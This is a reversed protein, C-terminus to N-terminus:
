ARRGSCPEEYGGEEMLRARLGAIGGREYTEVIVSEAITVTRTRPEYRGAAGHPLEAV